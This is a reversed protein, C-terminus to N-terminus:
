STLKESATKWEGERGKIRTKRIEDQLVTVFILKELNGKDWEGESL